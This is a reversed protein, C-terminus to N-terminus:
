QQRSLDFTIDNLGLAYLINYIKVQYDWKIDDNCFIEVPDSVSRKQEKIIASLKFVFDALCAEINEREIDINEIVPNSGIQVKCGSITPEISVRLPDIVDLRQLQSRMSPLQIPLFQEPQRFRATLVFFILLLFIVDIMATMRLAISSRKQSRMRRM